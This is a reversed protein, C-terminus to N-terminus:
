EKSTSYKSLQWDPLSAMSAQLISVLNAPNEGLNALPASIRGYPPPQNIANELFNYIQDIAEHYEAQNSFWAQVDEALNTQARVQASFSIGGPLFILFIVSYLYLTSKM